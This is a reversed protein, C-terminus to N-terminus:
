NWAVGNDDLVASSSAESKVSAPKDGLVIVLASLSVPMKVTATSSGIGVVLYGGSTLSLQTSKGISSFNDCHTSESSMGGRPVMQFAVLVGGKPFIRQKVKTNYCQLTFAAIKENRKIFKLHFRLAM